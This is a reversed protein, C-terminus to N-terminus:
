KLQEETIALVDQQRKNIASYSVNPIKYIWGATRAQLDSVFRNAAASMESMNKNFTVNIAAFHDSDKQYAAINIAAGSKLQYTTNVAPTQDAFASEPEVDLLQFSSLANTIQHLEADVVQADPDALGAVTFTNEEDGTNEIMLVAGDQQEIKVASIGSPEVSFINKRLWYAADYNLDVKKDILWSQASDPARAYCNKNIQPGPKGIILAYSQDGTDVIVKVGQASALGTDEVGLKEYLSQNATKQAIIKARALNLLISRIKSIDAPYDNKQKVVWADQRRSLTSVTKDGAAIIRVETVENLNDELGALIAAGTQASSNISPGSLSLFYGGAGAALFIVLIVLSKIKMM